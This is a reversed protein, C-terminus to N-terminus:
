EQRQKPPDSTSVNASGEYEIVWFILSWRIWHSRNRVRLDTVLTGGLRQSEKTIKDVLRDVRVSNRFPMRPVGPYDLDGTFLPIYKFLYVGWNSAYIHAIPESEPALQQENLRDIPIVKVTACGQILLLM